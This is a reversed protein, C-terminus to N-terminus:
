NALREHEQIHLLFNDQQEHHTQNQRNLMYSPFVREKSKNQNIGQPEQLRGM